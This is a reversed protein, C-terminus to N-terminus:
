GFQNNLCSIPNGIQNITRRGNQLKQFNQADRSQDPDVTGRSDVSKNQDTDDFETLKKNSSLFM